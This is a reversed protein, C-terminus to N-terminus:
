FEFLFTNTQFIHLERGKDCSCFERGEAYNEHTGNRAGSITLKEQQIGRCLRIVAHFPNAGWKAKTHIFLVGCHMTLDNCKENQRDATTLLWMYFHRDPTQRPAQAKLKANREEM